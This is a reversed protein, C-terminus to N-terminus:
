KPPDWYLGSGLGRLPRAPFRKRLHPDHKILDPTHPSAMVGCAYDDFRPHEDVDYELAALSRAYWGVIRALGGEAKLTEREDYSLPLPPADPPGNEAFWMRARLARRAAKKQPGIPDLRPVWRGGTLPNTREWPDNRDPAENFLRDVETELNLAVVTKM